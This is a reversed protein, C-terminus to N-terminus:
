PILVTAPVLFVNTDAYVDAATDPTTVTLYEQREELLDADYVRLFKEYDVRTIGQVVLHRVAEATDTVENGGVDDYDGTAVFLEDRVSPLVNADRDYRITFSVETPQEDAEDTDASDFEVNLIQADAYKSVEEIIALFRQHGRAVRRGIEATTPKTDFQSHDQTYVAGNDDGDVTPYTGTGGDLTLVVRYYNPQLQNSDQQFGSM